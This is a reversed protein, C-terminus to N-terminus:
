APVPVTEFERSAPNQIYDRIYTSLYGHEWLKRDAIKTNVKGLLKVTCKSKHRFEELTVGSIDCDNGRPSEIICKPLHLVKEGNLRKLIDDFTLLITCDSDGGLTANPVCLFRARNKRYLRLVRYVSKAMVVTDRKDLELSDFLSMIKHRNLFATIYPETHITTPNSLGAEHVRQAEEPLTEKGRRCIKVTNEDMGKLPTLCGMWLIVNPNLRSITRADESMTHADFSYFNASTVAPGDLVRVLHAVSPAHPMLAKRYEKHLTIVSLEFNIRNPYRAALQHIKPVHVYGVTFMTVAKDTYKLFDELWAMAKPHLFLDTWEMYENGGWVWNENPRTPKKSIYDLIYNWEEQTTKGPEETARYSHDIEYCFTCKVPCTKGISIPIKRKDMEKRLVERSDSAHPYILRAETPIVPLETMKSSM